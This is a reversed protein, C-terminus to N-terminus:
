RLDGFSSSQEWRVKDRESWVGFLMPITRGFRQMAAEPGLVFLATAWADSQMCRPAVVTCSAIGEVPLGTRPILIHSYRRGGTAFFNEYSGSTSLAADRLELSRRRSSRAPDEIQVPWAEKGPPAGVVRLDGGARVMANTIGARRLTEIACDVAYGKAIANLDLTVGNTQFHVTHREGDLEVLRYNVRPLVADIEAPSPLRHEKWLFGWLQTLPAITPDFSGDTQRAIALANSIVLFLEESVKVREQGATANIRALESDARHLSMLSDVRRIEDFAATIARNAADRNPSYATVVVFTGLLPQSRRFAKSQAPLFTQCGATLLCLLACWTNM